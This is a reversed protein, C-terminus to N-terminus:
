IHILSLSEDFDTRTEMGIEGPSLVDVEVGRDESHTLLLGILAEGVDDGETLDFLEDIGLDLM